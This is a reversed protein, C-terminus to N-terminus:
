ILSHATARPHATWNEVTTVTSQMPLLKTCLLSHVEDDHDSCANELVTLQYDLDAAERVTSLISGSTAIGALVLHRVEWARLLIALDTGSFASARRKVLLPEEHRRGLDEHLGASPHDEGFTELAAVRSFLVNRPSVDAVGGRFGLRVFVIAMAESRAFDLARRAGALVQHQKPAPYGGLVAPQLDIVLLATSM